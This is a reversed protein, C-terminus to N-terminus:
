RRSRRRVLRAGESAALASAILVPPSTVIQEAPAKDPGSKQKM